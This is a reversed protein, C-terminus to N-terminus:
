STKKSLMPWTDGIRYGEPWPDNPDLMHQHIGTIWARGTIVPVIGQKDGVQTANVIQGDFRSGIISYAIFREGVKMQDKAQLVAMRASVGTGTPSRDLKGPQIVVTNRVARIGDEATLPTSIQCFSIHKWEPNTPHHFGLQENAANTIQIGIEVLDRAEHPTIEFGLAKADIMM